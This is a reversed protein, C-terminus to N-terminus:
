KAPEDLKLLARVEPKLHDVLEARREEAGALTVRATAITADLGQLSKFAYAALEYVNLDRPQRKKREAKPKEPKTPKPKDTTM